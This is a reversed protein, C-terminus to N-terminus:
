MYRGDAPRRCALARAQTGGQRCRPLPRRRHRRVQSIYALDLPPIPSLEVGTAGYRGEGWAYIDGQDSLAASHFGGLCLKSIQKPRLAKVLAKTAVQDPHPNSNPNPGPNPNSNPSPNAAQSDDVPMGVDADDKM